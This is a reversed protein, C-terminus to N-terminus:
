DEDMFIKSFVYNTIIKMKSWYFFNIIFKIIHVLIKIRELTKTLPILNVSDFAKAMMLFNKLTYIKTLNCVRRLSEYDAYVKTFKRLNEYIKTLKRLNKGLKKTLFKFNKSNRYRPM